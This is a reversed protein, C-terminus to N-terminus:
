CFSLSCVQPHSRQHWPPLNQQSQPAHPWARHHKCPTPGMDPHPFGPLPRWSPLFLAPSSFCTGPIQSVGLHGRRAPLVLASGRLEAACCRGSIAKLICPPRHQAPIVRHLPLVTGPLSVWSGASGPASPHWPVRLSSPDGLRWCTGPGRSATCGSRAPTVQRGQASPRPDGAPTGPTPAASHALHPWPRRGVGLM